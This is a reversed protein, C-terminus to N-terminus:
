ISGQLVPKFGGFCIFQENDNFNVTFPQLMRYNPNFIPGLIPSPRPSIGGGGSQAVTQVTQQGTETKVQSSLMGDGVDCTQSLVARGIDGGEGTM